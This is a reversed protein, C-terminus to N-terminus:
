SSRLLDSTQVGEESSVADYGSLKENEKCSKAAEKFTHPKNGSNDEECSIFNDGKANQRVFFGTKTCWPKSRASTSALSNSCAINVLLNSVSPRLTVAAIVALLFLSVFVAGQWSTFEILVKDHAVTEHKSYSTHVINGSQQWSGLIYQEATGDNVFESNNKLARCDGLGVFEQITIDDVRLEILRMDGMKIPDSAVVDRPLVTYNQREWDTLLRFNRSVPMLAQYVFDLSVDKVETKTSVFIAVTRNAATYGGIEGHDYCLIFEWATNEHMEVGYGMCRIETATPSKSTKSIAVVTTVAGDCSKLDSKSPSLSSLGEFYQAIAYKINTKRSLPVDISLVPGATMSARRLTTMTGSELAAMMNSPTFEDSNMPFFTTPYLGETCNLNASFKALVSGVSGAVTQTPGDRPVCWEINSRKRKYRESFAVSNTKANLAWVTAIPPSSAPVLLQHLAAPIAAVVTALVLVGVGIGFHKISRGGPTVRFLHTVIPVPGATALLGIHVYGKSSLAMAIVGLVIDALFPSIISALFISFGSGVYLSGGSRIVTFFDEASATLSTMNGM